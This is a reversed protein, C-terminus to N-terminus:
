RLQKKCLGKGFNENFDNFSIWTNGTLNVFSSIFLFEISSGQLYSVKLKNEHINGRCM